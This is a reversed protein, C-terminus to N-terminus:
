KSFLGSNRHPDYQEPLSIVSSQLHGDSNRTTSSLDITIGTETKVAEVYQDWSSYNDPLHGLEPLKPDIM